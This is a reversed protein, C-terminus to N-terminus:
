KIAGVPEFMLPNKRQAELRKSWGTTAIASKLSSGRLSATKCFIRAVKSTTTGEIQITSYVKSVMAKWSPDKM